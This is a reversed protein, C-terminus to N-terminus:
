DALKYGGIKLSPDGLLTWGDITKRDAIGYNHANFVIVYDAISVAHAEGLTQMGQNAIADFFRIALWQGVDDLAYENVNGYGLGSNGITAVAGKNKLSLLKWSWCERIYEYRWFGGPRGPNDSFYDQINRPLLGLLLNLPTVNFQSSHCAGIVVIPFPDNNKILGMNHVTLGYIWTDNNPPHTVYEAPNGHGEVHVLGVGEKFGQLIDNPGTFSGDSAYLKIINYGIGEMLASSADTTMEGEYYSKSNPFTDGGAVLMKKSSASYYAKSEYDITKRVVVKVDELNRCAFRGLAVDPNGDIIDEPQFSFWEAFVGNGNSDWDEFEISASSENYRYIDAYYLESITGTEWYVDVNTRRVPVYWQKRIGKTGGVLLVFSINYTEIADKIFYKIQEPKDRGNYNRYIQETTMLFTQVGLDNKHNILPKLASSFIRPAIIVMDYEEEYINTFFPKEYVVNIDVSDYTSIMDELPKYSVPYIRFNLILGKLGCTISYDYNISPYVESNEYITNDFIHINEPDINKNLNIKPVKQPAPIIKETVKQESFGSFNCSIKTIKVNRPFVYTKVIVPLMPKGSNMLYSTAENLKLKIFEDTKELSIRSFGINDNFSSIKFSFDNNNQEFSLVNFCTFLFLFVVFLSVIKIKMLETVGM